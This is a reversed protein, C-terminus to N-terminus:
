HGGSKLLFLPTGYDIRQGEEALVSEVVGSSPACVSTYADGVQLLALPQGKVVADGPEVRTEPRSPHVRRLIGLSEAKIKVCPAGSDTVPVTTPLRAAVQSVAGIHQSAGIDAAHVLIRVRNRGDNVEVLDVKRLHQHRAIHRIDSTEM